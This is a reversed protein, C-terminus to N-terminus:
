SRGEKSGEKALNQGVRKEVPAAIELRRTLRAGLAPVQALSALHAYIWGLEGSRFWSTVKDDGLAAFKQEDIVQLGQLIFPTIGPTNVPVAIDKLLGAESVHQVFAQTRTMEAQFAQLFAITEKLFGSDSGDELFLPEGEDEGWGGFARDIWVMFAEGQAALVFPYRRVFAPLYSGAWQDDPGEVFLNEDNRLGVLAALVPPGDAVKAFVTPYHVAAAPLEVAALPVSNVHRAFGFGQRRLRLRKHEERHLAMVQEYFLLTAM